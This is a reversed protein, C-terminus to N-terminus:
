VRGHKQEYQNQQDSSSHGRNINFVGGRFCRPKEKIGQCEGLRLFPLTSGHQVTNFPQTILRRIASLDCVTVTFRRTILSRKVRSEIPYFSIKASLSPNSGGIGAQSENKANEAM